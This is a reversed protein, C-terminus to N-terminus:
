DKILSLPDYGNDQLLTLIDSAKTRLKEAMDPNNEDEHEARNWLSKWELSLKSAEEPSIKSIM